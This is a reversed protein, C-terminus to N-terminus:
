RAYHLQTVTRGPRARRTPWAEGEPPATAVPQGRRMAAREDDRRTGARVAGEEVDQRVAIWPGPLSPLGLTAAPTPGATDYLRFTDGNTLLVETAPVRGGGSM